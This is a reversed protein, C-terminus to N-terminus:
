FLSVFYSSSRPPSSYLRITLAAKEGKNMFPVQTCKEGLNRVKNWRADVNGSATLYKKYTLKTTATYETGDPAKLKLTIDSDAGDFDTPPAAGSAKRLVSRTDRLM